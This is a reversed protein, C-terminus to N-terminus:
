VHPNRDVFLRTFIYILGSKLDPQNLNENESAFLATESNEKKNVDSRWKLREIPRIPRFYFNRQMRILFNTKECRPLDRFYLHIFISMKESSRMLSTNEQIKM